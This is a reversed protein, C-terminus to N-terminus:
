VCTTIFSSSTLHFRKPSFHKTAMCTYGRKALTNHVHTAVLFLAHTITATWTGKTPFVKTLIAICSLTHTVTRTKTDGRVLPRGPVRRTGKSAGLAACGPRGGHTQEHACTCTFRLLMSKPILEAKRVDQVHEANTHAHILVRQSM